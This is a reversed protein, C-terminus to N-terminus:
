PVRIACGRAVPRHGAPQQVQILLPPEPASCAAGSSRSSEGFHAALLIGPYRRGRTLTSGLPEPAKSEDRAGAWMVDSEFTIERTKVSPDLGDPVLAVASSGEELRM